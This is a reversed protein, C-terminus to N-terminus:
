THIRIKPFFMGVRKRYKRYEEGFEKELIYKEEIFAQVIALLTILPILYICYVAGWILFWGIVFIIGCIYQPHRVIKYPGTDVLRMVKNLKTTTGRKRLYVM